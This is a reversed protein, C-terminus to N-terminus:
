DWVYREDWDLEHRRLFERFEDQFTRQRHHSEQNAIYQRVQDVNSQSVSFAGYGAQWHFDTLRPQEQKIWKSSSTKVEEVLKAVTLTRSLQCLVHVHDAVCNTALSPCDINRLTGVLYGSMAERVAPSDLYPARNKTSFVVHLLINALSQPM